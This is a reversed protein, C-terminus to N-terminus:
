HEVTGGQGDNGYEGEESHSNESSVDRSRENWGTGGGDVNEEMVNGDGDM